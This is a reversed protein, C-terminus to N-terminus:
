LVTTVPSVNSVCTAQLRIVYLPLLQVTPIPTVVESTLLLSVLGTPADALPQANATSNVNSACPVLVLPGPDQVPQITPVPTEPSVNTIRANRITPM